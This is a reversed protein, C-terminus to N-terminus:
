VIINVRVGLAAEVFVAVVIPAMPKKVFPLSGKFFFRIVISKM